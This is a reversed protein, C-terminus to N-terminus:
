GANVDTGFPSAGPQEAFAWYYYIANAENQSTTAFKIGDSLFDYVVGTAEAVSTDALLYSDAPTRRVNSNRKVDVLVWSETTDRKILIWAPRFGMYVYQGASGTGDNGVYSGFKSYGPIESWCYAVYTSTNGNTSNDARLSFVSSTPETDNMMRTDNTLGANGQFEIYRGKATGDYASYAHSYVMWNDGVSRGKIIIWHPVKGLGHGVTAGSSGNGTYTVISFGGERNASVQSAITGDNNTVATGGAKWCWAVITEGSNNHSSANQPNGVTFGNSNFSVLGRGADDTFETNTVDPYLGKARGRVSDTMVHNRANSRSKCWILDPQFELSTISQGTSGNGTYTVIDFHKKPNIIPSTPPTINNTCVAKFGTPPTYLFGQQGFDASIKKNNYVGAVFVFGEKIKRSSINSGSYLPNAGTAPDQTGTGNSFFTGNKSVFFKDNDLDLAIGLIDGNAFTTLSSLIATDTASVSQYLVGEHPAYNISTFGNDNQYSLADNNSSRFGSNPTCIGLRITGNAGDYGEKLRFECYWKGSELAMTSQQRNHNNGSVANCMLNGESPILASNANVSLSNWTCFNNSPTDLVSDNTFDAAVSFNTPTFDNANGSRDKGLTAATTASNDNFDLYFGTTGHTGEYKKPRWIGTQFDTYGFSSPTHQQGDVFHVEAMYGDFKYNTTAGNRWVGLNHDTNKNVGSNENQAVTSDLTYQSGNVYFKMRDSATSLTTDVAWVLHYWGNHDKLTQTGRVNQGSDDYDWSIHIRDAEIFIGDNSAAGVSNQGTFIAIYGTTRKTRKIWGSWTFTTRNGGSGNTRTLYATDDSNFRLSREITSGGLARDDTILPPSFVRSM